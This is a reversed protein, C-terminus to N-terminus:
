VGEILGHIFDLCDYNGYKFTYGQKSYEGVETKIDKFIKSNFNFGGMESYEIMMEDVDFYKDMTM